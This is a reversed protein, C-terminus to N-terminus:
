VARLRDAFHEVDRYDLRRRALLTAAVSSLVGRNADLFDCAESYAALLLRKKEIPEVDGLRGWAITIDGPSLSTSDILLQIEEPTSGDYVYEAAYGAMYIRTGDISSARPGLPWMVHGRLGDEHVITAYSFGGMWRLMAAAHGAEHFALLPEDAPVVALLRPFTAAFRKAEPIM